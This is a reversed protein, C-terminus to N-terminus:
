HQKRRAFIIAMYDTDQLIAAADTLIQQEPLSCRKLYAYQFGHQELKRLTAAKDKYPKLICICNVNVLVAEEVYGDAMYFNEGKVTVPWGLAAAATNCSCIGPVIVQRLGLQQAAFMVYTYTSYVFPDGLTIFVGTQGDDLTADITRAAERYTETNDQKMQVHLYIVAKGDLHEAVAAEAMGQKDPEPRPVFIFDAERILRVAKLTVLEPDGPGVGVGYLTKM